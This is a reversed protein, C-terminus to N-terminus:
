NTNNKIEKVDQKVETIDEKQGDIKTELIALKELIKQHIENMVTIQDHQAEVDKVLNKIDIGYSILIALLGGIAIMTSLNTRLWAWLEFGEKRAIDGAM